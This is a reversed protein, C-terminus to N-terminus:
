PSRFCIQCQALFARSLLITVVTFGKTPVTRTVSGTRYLRALLRFDCHRMTTGFRTLPGERVGHLSPPVANHVPPRFWASPM